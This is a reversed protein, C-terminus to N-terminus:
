ESVLILRYTLGFYSMNMRRDNVLHIQRRSHDQYSVGKSLLLWSSCIEEVAQKGARSLTPGFCLVVQQKGIGLLSICCSIM